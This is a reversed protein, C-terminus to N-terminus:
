NAEVKKAVEERGGIQFVFSKPRGDSALDFKLDVGSRTMSFERESHAVIEFWRDSYFNAFLKEGERKITFNRGPSVEYRGVYRDLVNAPLTIKEKTEAPPDPAVPEPLERLWINRYRVPSGHDQL